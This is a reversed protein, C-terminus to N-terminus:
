KRFTEIEAQKEKIRQQYHRQLEERAESECVVARKAEDLQIKVDSIEATKLNM